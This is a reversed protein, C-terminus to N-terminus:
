RDVEFELYWKCKEAFLNYCIALIAVFVSALVFSGVSYLILILAMAFLGSAGAEIAGSPSMVISALLSLFIFGAIAAGMTRSVPLVPMHTIKIKGVCPNAPKASAQKAQSKKRSVM